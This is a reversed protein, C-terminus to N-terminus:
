AEAIAPVIADSVTENAVEPQSDAQSFHGVRLVDVSEVCVTIRHEAMIEYRLFDVIADCVKRDVIIEIRVMASRHQGNAVRSRGAGTCPISTYGSAGCEFLCELLWEEIESNAVVTIRRVTELGGKKRAAHADKALPKLAELGHVEFSLGEQEFDRKTEALKEMVSHDVLKTNSVDM